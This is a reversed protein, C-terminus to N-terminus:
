DVGVLAAFQPNAYLIESDSHILVAEHLHDGLASLPAHATLHPTAPVTESHRQADIRNLLHNVVQGLSQIEPVGVDTDVREDLANGVAIHHLQQTMARLAI